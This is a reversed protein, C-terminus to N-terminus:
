PGGRAALDAAQLLPLFFGGDIPNGTPRYVEAWALLAAAATRLSMGRLPEAATRSAVALAFIPGVRSRNVTWRGV